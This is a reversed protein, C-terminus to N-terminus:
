LVIEVYECFGTGPAASIKNSLKQALLFKSATAELRVAPMESKSRRYYIPPSIENLVPRACAGPCISLKVRVHASARSPTRIKDNCECLRCPRAHVCRDYFFFFFFLLFFFLIEGQRPIVNRKRPLKLLLFFHVRRARNDCNLEWNTRAAVVVLSRKRRWGAAVGFSSGRSSSQSRLNVYDWNLSPAAGYLSSVASRETAPQPRDNFYFRSKDPRRSQVPRFSGRSRVGILNRRSRFSGRATLLSTLRRPRRCRARRRPQLDTLSVFDQTM